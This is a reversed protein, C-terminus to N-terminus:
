DEAGSAPVATQTELYQTGRLSRMSDLNAGAFVSRPECSRPLGAALSRAVEHRYLRPHVRTSLSARRGTKWGGRMLGAMGMEPM